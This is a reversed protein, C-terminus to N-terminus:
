DVQDVAQRVGAASDANGACIVLPESEPGYVKMETGKASYWTDVVDILGADRLQELHYQVNQLTTDISEAIDSATAPETYLQSVIERATTSTLTELVEGATEISVVNPSRDVEVSGRVPFVSQSSSM